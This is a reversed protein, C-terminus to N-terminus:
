YRWYEEFTPPVGDKVDKKNRPKADRRSIKGKYASVIRDFPHRVVLFKTSRSLEQKQQKEGKPAPFMKRATSESADHQKSYRQWKPLNSNFSSLRLFNTTWTGSAVKYIPCYVLHHSTDWMLTGHSVKRPRSIEDGM